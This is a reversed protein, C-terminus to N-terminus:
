NWAAITNGDTDEIYGISVDVAISSGGAPTGFTVMVDIIENELVAEPANIM